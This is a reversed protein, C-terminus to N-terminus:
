LAADMESSGPPTPTRLRVDLKSIVSEPDFPVIGAEKFGSQINKHTFVEFFTNKFFPLFDEKAIYILSRRMMKEVMKNHVQKLSSFCAVDFSQLIHSSHAPMCLIIINHKKCYLEFDSSVHSKHGNFVLLRRM